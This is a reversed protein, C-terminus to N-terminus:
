LFFYFSDIEVDAFLGWFYNNVMSVDKPSGCFKDTKYDGYMHRGISIIIQHLDTLYNGLYDTPFSLKATEDLRANSSRYQDYKCLIYALWLIAVSCKQIPVAM